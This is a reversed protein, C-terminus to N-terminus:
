KWKTLIEERQFTAKSLYFMAVDAVALAAVVSLALVVPFESQTNDTLPLGLSFLKVMLGAGVSM